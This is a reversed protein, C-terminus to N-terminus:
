NTICKIINTKQEKNNKNNQYFQKRQEAIKNKNNQYFQKGHEAIQNKNNPDFQKKYAKITDANADYYAKGREKVTDKNDLYKLIRKEKLMDWNNYYYVRKQANIKSTNDDYYQKPTRGEIRTNLTPKLERIYHGEKATLEGRSKCNYAELLEIFFHEVGYEKFYKYLKITNRKIDNNASRHDRM